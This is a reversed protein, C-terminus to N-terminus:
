TYIYNEGQPCKPTIVGCSTSSPKIDGRFKCMALREALLDCLCQTTDVCACVDFALTAIDIM